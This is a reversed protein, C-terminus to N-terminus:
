LRAGRGSPGVRTEIALMSDLREAKRRAFMTRVGDANKSIGWFGSNSKELFQEVTVPPQHPKPKGIFSTLSFGLRALIDLMDVTQQRASNGSLFPRALPRDNDLLTHDPLGHALGWELLRLFLANRAGNVRSTTLGHAWGDLVKQPWRLGPSSEPTGWWAEVVRCVQEFRELSCLDSANRTLVAMGWAGTPSVGKLANSLWELPEDDSSTLALMLLGCAGQLYWGMVTAPPTPLLGKALGERLWARHPSAPDKAKECCFALFAPTVPAGAAHMKELWHELKAQHPFAAPKGQEDVPLQKFMEVLTDLASKKHRGFRAHAGAELLQDVVTYRGHQLAVSLPLRGQGRFLIRRNPDLGHELLVPLMALRKAKKDVLVRSWATFPGDTLTQWDPHEALFARVRDAQGSAITRRLQEAPTLEQPLNPM